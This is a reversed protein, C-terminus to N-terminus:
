TIRLAPGLCSPIQGTTAPCSQHKRVATTTARRVIEPEQDPLEIALATDSVAITVTQWRHLRGLAIKAAVMGVPVERDALGQYRM